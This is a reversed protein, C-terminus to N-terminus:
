WGIIFIWSVLIIILWMLFLIVENDISEIFKSMLEYVLNNIEKPDTEDKGFPIMFDNEIFGHNFIM